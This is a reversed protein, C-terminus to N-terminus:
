SRFYEAAEEPSVHNIILGSGIEVGAWVSGRPTIKLYLHQNPDAIVQHFYYNYPLRLLNIKRLIKKLLNAMDLREGSNLETVNDLHQKPMIWVEYNHMSAYPAFAIMGRNEAIFRPGKREIKAVECYVCTKHKRRFRKARFTKDLIHSPTFSTAFIQSHAHSISAGARGGSNKFILIYQIKKNKSIEKTREAYVKLIEGIRSAPLEEIQLSPKATEIVVEQVGYARPNDLSVSPYLNPVVAIDWNQRNPARYLIDERQNIEKLCFVCKADKIAGVSLAIGRQQPRFQRLPAIIVYKEQIYDRRIESRAPKHKAKKIHEFIDINRKMNKRM